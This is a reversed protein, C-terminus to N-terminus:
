SRALVRATGRRERRMCQKAADFPVTRTAMTLDYVIPSLRSLVAADIEPKDHFFPGEVVGKPSRDPRRSPSNVAGTEATKARM